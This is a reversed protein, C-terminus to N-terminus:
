RQLYWQSLTYHGVFDHRTQLTCNIEPRRLFCSTVASQVRNHKVDEGNDGCDSPEPISWFIAWLLVKMDHKLSFPRAALGDLVSIPNSRICFIGFSYNDVYLSIKKRLADFPATPQNTSLLCVECWLIRPNLYRDSSHSGHILTKTTTKLELLYIGWNLVSYSGEM